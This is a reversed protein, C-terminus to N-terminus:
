KMIQKFLQTFKSEPLTRVAKTTKRGVTGQNNIVWGQVSYTTYTALGSFTSQAKLPGSKYPDSESICTPNKNVEVIAMCYLAVAYRGPRNTITALLSNQMPVLHLVPQRPVPSCCFFLQFPLLHRIHRVM